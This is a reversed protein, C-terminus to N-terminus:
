MIALVIPENTTLTITCSAASINLHKILNKSIEIPPLLTRRYVGEHLYNNQRCVALYNVGDARTFRVHKWAITGGSIGGCRHVPGHAM